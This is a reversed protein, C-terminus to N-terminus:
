SYKRTFFSKKAIEIKTKNNSTLMNQIITNSRMTDFLLHLKITVKKKQFGVKTVKKGSIRTM